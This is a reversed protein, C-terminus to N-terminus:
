SVRLRDLFIRNVVNPAGVQWAGLASAWGAWEEGRWQVKINVRQVTTINYSAMLSTWQHWFLDDQMCLNVSLCEYWCRVDTYSTTWSGKRCCVRESCELNRCGNAVDAYPGDVINDCYYLSSPELSPCVDAFEHLGAATLQFCGSFDAHRLNVFRIHGSLARFYM